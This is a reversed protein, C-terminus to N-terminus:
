SSLLLLLPLLPIPVRRPSRVDFFLYVCVVTGATYRVIKVRNGRVRSIIRRGTTRISPRTSISERLPRRQTKRGYDGDFKTRFRNRRGASVTSALRVRYMAVTVSPGGRPPPTSTTVREGLIGRGLLGRWGLFEVRGNRRGFCALSNAFWKKDLDGGLVLPRVRKKGSDGGM